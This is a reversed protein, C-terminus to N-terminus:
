DVPIVGIAWQTEGVFNNESKALIFYSTGTSNFFGFQGEAGVPISEGSGRTVAIDSIEKTGLLEFTEGDYIRIMNTEIWAASPGGSIGYIRNASEMYDIDVFTGSEELDTVFVMDGDQDESSHYVGRYPGFLYDGNDSIWLGGFDNTHQITSNYMYVAEGQRIDVKACSMPSLELPVFYIYDESPHLRAISNKSYYVGETTYQDGSNLNISVIANKFRHFIYLWNNSALVVDYIKDEYENSQVLSLTELDIFDFGFEYAVIAAKGDPSLSLNKPADRLEIYDFLRSIPDMVRLENPSESLLVIRDIEKNYEADIVQGYILWKDDEYSSSQGNDVACTSFILAFFIASFYFTSVTNPFLVSM